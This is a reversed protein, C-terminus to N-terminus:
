SVVKRPVIKTTVKACYTGFGMSASELKISFQTFHEHNKGKKNHFPQKSRELNIEVVRDLCITENSIDFTKALAAETEDDEDFEMDEISFAHNQAYVNRIASIFAPKTELLARERTIFLEPIETTSIFEHGKFADELDQWGGDCGSGDAEEFKFDVTTIVSFVFYETKDSHIMNTEDEAKRKSLM